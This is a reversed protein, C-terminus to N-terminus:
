SALVLSQPSTSWDSENFATILDPYAYGISGTHGPMDIEIFVSIGKNLGYLQVEALDSTSWALSGQYAGAAALSPLSPVTIPWSQADTAHLHLRSMKATAMADITRLVDNPSFFNRAIDLNLGRHTWKPADEISLPTYSTYVGSGSSHAYFLQEFTQLARITGITSNSTINATGNATISITYSEDAAFFAAADLSPALTAQYIQVKSLFKQDSLSPEFADNRRHLKWPVFKTSAIAQQTRSIAAQLVAQESLQPNGTVSYNGRISLQSYVELFVGRVSVYMSRARSTYSSYSANQCSVTIQLNPDAWLVTSGYIFSVPEPWLGHSSTVFSCLLVAILQSLLAM